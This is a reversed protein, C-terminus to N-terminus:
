SRRVECLKLIKAWAGTLHWRKKFTGKNWLFFTSKLDLCSSLKVSSQPKVMNLPLEFMVQHYDLCTQTTYYYSKTTVWVRSVPLQVHRLPLQFIVSHYSFRSKSTVFASLPWLNTETKWDFSHYSFLLQCDGQWNGNGSLEIVIWICHPGGFTQNLTTVKLFYITLYCTTLIYCFQKFLVFCKKALKKKILSLSIQLFEISLHQHMSVFNWLQKCEWLMRRLLIDRM